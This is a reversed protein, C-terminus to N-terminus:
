FFATFSLTAAAEDAKEGADKTAQKIDSDILMMYRAGPMIQFRDEVMFPLSVKATLDVLGADEPVFAEVGTATNAPYSFMFRNYKEDAGGVSLVVDLASGDEGLELSHAVGFSAYVGDVEGFDHYVTLSPLLPVDLTYGLFAEFTDQSKDVANDHYIYATVGGSMIQCGHVHTYDLTTDVRTQESSNHAGSIDWNGWVNCSINGATVTLSPQVAIDDSLVRGRWLHATALTVDVEADVDLTAAWTVGSGLVMMGIVLAILQRQM